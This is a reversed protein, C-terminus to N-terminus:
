IPSSFASRISIEGVDIARRPYDIAFEIEFIGEEKPTTKFAPPYYHKGGIGLDFIHIYAPTWNQTQTMLNDYTLDEIQGLPMGTAIYSFEIEWEYGEPVYDSLKVIVKRPTRSSEAIEARIQELVVGWAPASNYQYTNSETPVAINGSSDRAVVWQASVGSGYRLRTVENSAPKFAAITFANVMTSTPNKIYNDLDDKDAKTDADWINQFQGGATVLTAVNIPGVNLWSAVEPTPGIQVYLDYPASPGVLYAATVNNVQSPSPLNSVNAVIGVINVLGGVDGRPGPAGRPGVPGQPGEPGEPGTLGRPGAINSRAEWTGSSTVQYLTTKAIWVDGIQYGNQLPNQPPFAPSVNIKNGRTGQAGIPGQPGRPGQPGTIAIPGIDFWYDNPHGADVDARTWIWISFPPESGVAFADGYDGAFTEPPPLLNPTLVQGIIRIGFDALVRDINYHAAIDEKNKQVQEVLTRYEVGNIEIM